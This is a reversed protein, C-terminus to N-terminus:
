KQVVEVRRLAALLEARLTAPPRTSSLSFHLNIWTEAEVREARLISLTGRALPVDFAIVEWAGERLMEVRAPARPGTFISSQKEEKWLADLGKYRAAPELWGRLTLMPDDKELKFFNGAAIGPRLATDSVKVVVRSDPVTFTFPAGSATPPPAAGQAHAAGVALCAALSLAATALRM